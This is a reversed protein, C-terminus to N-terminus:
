PALSLQVLFAAEGLFCSPGMAEVASVLRGDLGLRVDALAIMRRNPDAHPARARLLRAAQLEQGAARVAAVILATATSRSIGAHCHVLLPDLGDWGAAFGVIHEVHERDPAILDPEPDNIDHFELKLHRGPAIGEVRPASTEPDTISILHRPRVQAAAEVVAHLGCIYIM